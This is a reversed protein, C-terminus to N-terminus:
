QWAPSAIVTLLSAPDYATASFTWSNVGPEFQSWGRSTVWGNRSSQGNALVERREMDVEIWEGAGLSISSSFVLSRGSNVHTVVPGTVPGDIRLRVPGAINGDNTLSVHGAVVTSAITLPVTFPVTLGGSTSPLATSGSLEDGFKRPDEAVLQISWWASRDGEWRVLVEGSRKVTMSRHRGSEEVTLLGSDLSTAAILTDIADLAADATDALMWGQAALSRHTLYGDGSWAGHGRVRQTMRTTSSPSGWGDLSEMSWTVGTSTDEGTLLLGNLTAYGPSLLTVM